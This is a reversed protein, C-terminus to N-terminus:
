EVEVTVPAEAVTKAKRLDIGVKWRVVFDEAMAPVYGLRDDTKHHYLCLTGLRCEPVAAVLAAVSLRGLAQKVCHTEQEETKDPCQELVTDIITKPRDVTRQYPPLHGAAERVDFHDCGAGGLLLPGCVALRLTARSVSLSSPLQSM